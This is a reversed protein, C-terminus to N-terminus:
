IQIHSFKLLYSFHVFLAFILFNTLFHLIFSSCTCSFSMLVWLTQFPYPLYIFEYSLSMSHKREVFTVIAGTLSCHLLSWYYKFGLYLSSPEKRSSCSTGLNPSVRKATACRESSLSVPPLQCSTYFDALQIAVIFRM